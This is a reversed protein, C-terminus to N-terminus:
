AAVEEGRCVPCPALTSWQDRFGLRSGGIWRSHRVVVEGTDQCTPCPLAAAPTPEPDDDLDLWGLCALLASHHMCRQVRLFGLCTCSFGTVYHWAGPHSVSSAFWRGDPDLRLRVGSERAVRLLRRLAQERTETNRTITDM